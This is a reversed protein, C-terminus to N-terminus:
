AAELAADVFDLRDQGWFIEDGVVYTPAGFVGRAVAQDTEAARIANADYRGAARELAGPDMGAEAVVERITRALGIDREEAWVARMFRGALDMADLGEARAAIVTEAARTEDAPFHAPKLNLEVGLRERWRGLEKLRYAQREPARKPLPLGGTREFIALVNVPHITVEAGHRAAIERLRAHGLYTWPSTLACYYDVRM